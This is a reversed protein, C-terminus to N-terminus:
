LSNRRVEGREGNALWFERGSRFNAVSPRRTKYGIALGLCPFRHPFFKPGRNQLRKRLDQWNFCRSTRSFDLLRPSEEKARTEDSHSFRLVHVNRVLNTLESLFVPCHARIWSSRYWNSISDFLIKMNFSSFLEDCLQLWIEVCLTRDLAAELTLQLDYEDM